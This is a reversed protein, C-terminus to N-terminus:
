AENTSLKGTSTLVPLPTMTNPLPHEKPWRYGLVRDTAFAAITVADKQNGGLVMLNGNADKGVVFGVHGFKPGRSFVVVAGVAPGTLKRGWKLYGRAWGTRASKVCGNELQASVFAACWPTEDDKYDGAKGEAWLNVVKPNHKPGPIEKTGILAKAADLWPYSVAM